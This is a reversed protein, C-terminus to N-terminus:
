RSVPVKLDGYRRREARPNTGPRNGCAPGHRSSHSAIASTRFGEGDRDVSADVPIEGELTRALGKPASTIPALQGNLAELLFTPLGGMQTTAVPMLWRGPQLLSRDYQLRAMASM